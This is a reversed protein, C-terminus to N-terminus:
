PLPMEIILLKAQETPSSLSHASLTIQTKSIFASTMIELRRCTETNEKIEEILRRAQPTGTYEHMNM